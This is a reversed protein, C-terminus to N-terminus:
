VRLDDCDPDLCQHNKTTEECHTRRTAGSFSVVTATSSISPRYHELFPTGRALVSIGQGTSMAMRCDDPSACDIRGRNKPLVAFIWILWGLGPM